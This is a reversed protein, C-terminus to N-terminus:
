IGCFQSMRRDDMLGIGFGSAQRQVEARAMDVATVFADWDSAAERDGDIAYGRWTEIDAKLQGLDGIDSLAEEGAGMDVRNHDLDWAMGLTSEATTMM